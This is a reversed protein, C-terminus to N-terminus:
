LNQDCLIKKTSFWESENSFYAANTKFMLTVSLPKSLCLISDIHAM